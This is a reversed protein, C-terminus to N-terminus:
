HVNEIQTHSQLLSSFFCRVFDFFFMEINHVNILNFVTIYIM